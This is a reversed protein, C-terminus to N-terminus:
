STSGDRSRQHRLLVPRGDIVGDGNLGVVARRPDPNAGARRECYNGIVLTM